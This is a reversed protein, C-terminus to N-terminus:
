RMNNGEESKDHKFETTGSRKSLPVMFYLADSKPIEALPSDLAIGEIIRKEWASASDIVLAENKHIKADSIGFGEYIVLWSNPTLERNCWELFGELCLEM